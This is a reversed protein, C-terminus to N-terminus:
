RVTLQLMMEVFIDSIMIVAALTTSASLSLSLFHWLRVFFLYFVFYLFIFSIRLYVYLLLISWPQVLCFHTATDCITLHSTIIYSINTRYVSNLWNHALLYCDLDAATSSTYELDNLKSYISSPIFIYMSLYMHIYPHTNHAFIIIFIIYISCVIKSNYIM